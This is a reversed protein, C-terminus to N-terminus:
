SGHHSTSQNTGSRQPPLLYGSEAPQRCRWQATQEYAHATALLRSEDFWGGILQLGIPMDDTTFGCPMSLAPQGTLAALRTLRGLVKAGEVTDTGVEIAGDVVRVAPIPSTPMALLDVRELLHMMQRNVETRAWRARLLTESPTDQGILLRTRVDPSLEDGHKAITDQHVLYAEAVAITTWAETAQEAFPLSVPVVTAGLDELMALADRVATEVEPHLDDFFYDTPAGIRVGKVDSGLAASYDSVQAFRTSPDDRDEGAIVQLLVAVDAVTKGLPGGHDLEECLPYIGDRSALGYTQKLGVVGCLSAPIRISGGTDTGLAAAALSAAVACGSGSSSGGCVREPNWPNRATGHHPNIGTPGYAFEHLNLTGLIIAGAARLRAVSTADRKATEGAMIRSGCTREMGAVLFLDKVALPVGHLAGRHRGRQIEREAQGAAALAHEPDLGIYANLLPNLHGIRELYAGTVEVPSLEKRAFLSALATIPLSTLAADSM